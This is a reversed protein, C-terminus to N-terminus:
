RRRRRRRCRSYTAVVVVDANDDVTRRVTICQEIIDLADANQRRASLREILSSYSPCQSRPPVWGAGQRDTSRDIDYFQFVLLSRRRRTRADFPNWIFKCIRPRKV